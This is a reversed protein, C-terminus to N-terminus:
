RSKATAAKARPARPKAAKARKAAPKTTPRAAAAPAGVAKVLADYSRRLCEAYFAPDPMMDRCSTATIMVNGSYSFVAHILGVGDQVPGMGYQAVLRAGCMYLPQQPGPVNTVVCNAFPTTQNALGLESYQRAALAATASPIFQTYDTMLRAGVANTMEKASTTSEHVARLRELSDAVNTGLSVTMGAVQNGQDAKSDPTRVSVPAMALLSDDPLEGARQQDKLYLLLTHAAEEDLRYENTLVDVAHAPELDVIRRTLAGIARGFGVPRGLAPGIDIDEAM